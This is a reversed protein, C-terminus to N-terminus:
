QQDTDPSDVWEVSDVDWIDGFPIIFEQFNRTDRLLVLQNTLDRQVIIGLSEYIGKGLPPIESQPHAPHGNEDLITELRFRCAYSCGVSVEDIGIL